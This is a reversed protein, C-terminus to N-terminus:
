SARKIRAPTGYPRVGLANLEAGVRNASIGVAAAIEDLTHGDTWMRTMTDRRERLHAHRRLAAARMNSRTSASVPRGARVLPFCVACTKAGKSCRGGCNPCIAKMEQGAQPGKGRHALHCELCRKADYKRPGGCDPCDYAPGVLARRCAWCRKADRHCRGGCDQCRAYTTGSSM